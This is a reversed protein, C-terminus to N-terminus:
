ACVVGWRGCSTSCRIVSATTPTTPSAVRAGGSSCRLLHLGGLIGAQLEEGCECLRIGAVMPYPLGFWTRLATRFCEDEIQLVQFLSDVTLWAAAGPGTESMLRARGAFNDAHLRDWLAESAVIDLYRGRCDRRFGRSRYGGWSQFSHLCRVHRNPFVTQLRGFPWRFLYCAPTWMM